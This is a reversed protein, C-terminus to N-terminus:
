TAVSVRGTRRLELVKLVTAFLEALTEYFNGDRSSAPLVAVGLAQPGCTLPMVFASRGLLSGFAEPVLRRADFRVLKPEFTQPNFGFALKLERPQGEVQPGLESVACSDIGFEPLFEALAASLHAQPGFMRTHLVRAFRNLQEHILDERALRVRTALEDALRRGGHLDGTGDSVVTRLLPELTTAFAGPRGQVEAALAALV